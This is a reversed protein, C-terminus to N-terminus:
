VKAGVLLAICFGFAAMAILLIAIELILSIKNNM